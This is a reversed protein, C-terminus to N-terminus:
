VRISAAKKISEAVAESALADKPYAEDGEDGSRREARHGWTESQSMAKRMSWASPPVISLRTAIAMMALTYGSLASRALAMPMHPPTVPRERASPGTTPPAKTPDDSPHRHIKTMLKGIPSTAASIARLITGSDLASRGRRKSGVPWIRTTATSAVRVYPIM